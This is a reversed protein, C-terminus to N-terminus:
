DARPRRHARAGARPEAAKSSEARLRRYAQEVRGGDADVTEVVLGDRLLLVRARHVHLVHILLAHHVHRVEGDRTRRLEERRRSHAQEPTFQEDPARHGLQQNFGVRHGDAIAM